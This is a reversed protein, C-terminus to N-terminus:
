LQVSNSPLLTIYTQAATGAQSGPIIDSQTCSLTVIPPVYGTPGNNNYIAFIAGTGALTTTPLYYTETGAARTIWTQPGQGIPGVVTGAINTYLGAAAGSGGTGVWLDGGTSGSPSSGPTLNLGAYTGQPVAPTVVRGAFQNTAKADSQYIGYNST